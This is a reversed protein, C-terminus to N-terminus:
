PLCKSSDSITIRDGQSIVYNSSVQNQNVCIHLEAVEEGPTHLDNYMNLSGMVFRISVGEVHAHWRYREGYEIHFSSHKHQYEQRSLDVEKNDVNIVITGHYHNDNLKISGQIVGFILLSVFFSILIIQSMRIYQQTINFPLTDYIHKLFIINVVLMIGIGTASTFRRAVFETIPLGIIYLVPNLICIFYVIVMSRYAYTANKGLIASFLAGSRFVRHAILATSLILFLIILLQFTNAIHVSFFHAPISGFSDIYEIGNHLTNRSVISIEIIFLQIILIILLYEQTNQRLKM